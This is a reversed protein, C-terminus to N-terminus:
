QNAKIFQGPLSQFSIRYHFFFCNGPQYYQNTNLEKIIKRKITELTDDIHISETSFIVEIGYKEMIEQRYKEEDDLLQYDFFPTVFKIAVVRVGLSSVLKSALISDPGGSFLAIATRQKM